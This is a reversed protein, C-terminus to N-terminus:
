ESTEDGAPSGDDRAARGDRGTLAARAAILGLGSAALTLGYHAEPTTSVSSVIFCVASGLFPVTVRKDMPEWRRRREDDPDPSGGYRPDVADILM